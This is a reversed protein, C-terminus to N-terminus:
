PPTWNPADPAGDALWKSLLDYDAQPLAGMDQESCYGPPPMNGDTVVRKNMCEWNTMGACTPSGSAAQLADYTRLDFMGTYRWFSPPATFDDPNDVLHCGCNDTLAQGVDTPIMGAMDGAVVPSSLGKNSVDGLGCGVFAGGTGSGGTGGSGGSGGGPLEAGAIWGLIIAIDLQVDPDGRTGPPMLAGAIQTDCMNKDPSMIKLALYSQCVDGLTVMPIGASSSGGVVSASAGADLSLGAQAAGMGHCGSLACSRDFAEQVATPVQAGGGGDDIPVLEKCAGAALTMVVVAALAGARAWPRGPVRAAPSVPALSLM